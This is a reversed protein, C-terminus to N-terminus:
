LCANSPSLCNNLSTILANLSLSLQSVNIFLVREWSNGPVAKRTLSSIFRFRLKKFCRCFVQLFLNSVRELRVWDDTMSGCDWSVGADWWGVGFLEYVNKTYDEQMGADSCNSIWGVFRLEELRLCTYFDRLLREHRLSDLDAVLVLLFWGVLDVRWFESM